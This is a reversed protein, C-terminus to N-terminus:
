HLTRQLWRRWVPDVGPVTALWARAAQPDLMSWYGFVSKAAAQRADINQIEPVLAAAAHPRDASASSMLGALAAQRRPGEPLASAWAMAGDLDRGAWAAAVHQLANEVPTSEPLDELMQATTEPAERGRDWIFNAIAPASKGGEGAVWAAFQDASGDWKPSPQSQKAIRDTLPSAPQAALWSQAAEADDHLWRDFPLPPMAQPNAYERAHGALWDAAEKPAESFLADLCVWQVSYSQESPLAFSREMLHRRQAPTLWRAEGFADTRVSNGMQSQSDRRLTEWPADPYIMVADAVSLFSTYPSKSPCANLVEVVLAGSVRSAGEFAASLVDYPPQSGALRMAGLPDNQALGEAVAMEMEQRERPSGCRELMQRALAPETEGLTKFAAKAVWLISDSQNGDSLRHPPLAELVAVPRETALARLLPAAEWNKPEQAKAALEPVAALAGEPAMEFWRRVFAKQYADAIESGTESPKLAYFNKTVQAVDAFDKAELGHVIRWLRKASGLTEERPLAGQLRGALAEGRVLDTEEVAGEAVKAPGSKGPAESTLSEGPKAVPGFQMRGAFYGGIAALLPLALRPTFRM